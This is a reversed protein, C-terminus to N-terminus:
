VTVRNQERCKKILDYATQVEKAQETAVSIVEEPLGQGTL